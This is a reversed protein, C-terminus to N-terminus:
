LAMPFDLIPVAKPAGFNHLELSVGYVPGLLALWLSAGFQGFIAELSPPIQAGSVM